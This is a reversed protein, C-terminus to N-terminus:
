KNRIAAELFSKFIPHPRNPRSKFEPHFQTGIFWPHEKLEFIEVLNDELNVGSFIIGAQEFKSLYQNNFGYSHRHREEIRDRQYIKFAISGKTLNCSYSGIRVGTDKFAVDTLRDLSNFIPHATDPAFEVSNADALNLVNKAFEILACKMGLCIGLFPIKEERAFKAAKIMGEIGKVGFGGHILIGQVGKLLNMIDEKLLLETDIQKTEVKCKQEIGAHTLAESISLYADKLRFYKGIVAINVKKDPHYLRNVMERWEKLDPNVTPLQLMQVMLNGLNQEELVLPVEYISDVDQMEIIGDRPIDCFLSIKDKVSETLKAQARCILLDPQIGISRLEKISHQTPKSKIEKAAKL